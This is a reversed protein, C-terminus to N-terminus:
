GYESRRIRATSRGRRDFTVTSSLRLITVYGHSGAIGRVAETELVLGWTQGAATGDSAKVKINLTAPSAVPLTVVRALRLTASASFQRSVVRSM